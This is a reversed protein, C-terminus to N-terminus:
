HAQCVALICDRFWKHAPDKDMRPHWLMSINISPVKYPLEFCFLSERLMNTFRDPIIAVLQSQRVIALSTSFGSVMLIPPKILGMSSCACDDIQQSFEPQRHVAIFDCHKLMDLSVPQKALPHDLHVAGILKDSFLFRSKMEPDTKDSIVSIEADIEGQKLLTGQKVEKSIIRLTCNPAQERMKALLAAAYNEAFGTSARLTFQRALSPLDLQNPVTFVQELQHILQTVQTRIALAYPTLVMIRGSKVLLPDNLSIRLRNLARNMASVSMQQKHAARTINAESLLANLVELLNLPIKLM